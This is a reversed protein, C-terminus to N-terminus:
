LPSLSMITIFYDKICIPLCGKIRKLTGIRKALKKCIAHVHENFTLEEDMHLGLLKASSVQEYQLDSVKTEM